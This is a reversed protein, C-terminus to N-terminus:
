HSSGSGSGALKQAQRAADDKRAQEVVAKIQAETMDPSIQVYHLDGDTIATSKSAPSGSGSEFGTVFTSVSDACPKQLVVVAVLLTATLAIRFFQPMSLRIGKGRPIRQVDDLHKAM